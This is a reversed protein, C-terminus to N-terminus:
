DDVEARPKGGSKSRRSKVRLDVEREAPGENKFKYQSGVLPESRM